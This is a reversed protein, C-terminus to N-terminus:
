AVGMSVLATGLAIVLVLAGVALLLPTGWGRRPYDDGFREKVYRAQGRAAAFYWAILLIFNVFRPLQFGHPRLSLLIMASVLLISAILWTRAANAREAEKLATWNKMHLWTGFVPSFLLCWNAAANPNWLPPAATTGLPANEVVARPPAYPNDPM